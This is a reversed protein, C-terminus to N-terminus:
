SNQSDKILKLALQAILALASICACVIIIMGDIYIGDMFGSFFGSNTDTYAYISGFILPFILGAVIILLSVGTIWKINDKM